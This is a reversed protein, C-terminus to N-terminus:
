ASPEWVTATLTDSPLALGTLQEVVTVTTSVVGGFMAHGAGNITSAVELAPAKTVGADAVADSVTEDTM